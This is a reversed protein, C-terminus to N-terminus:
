NHDQQGHHENQNEQEGHNKAENNIVRSTSADIEVKSGDAFHFEFVIRGHETETETETIEVGVHLAKAIATAGALDTPTATNDTTPTPKVEVHHKEVTSGPTTTAHNIHEKEVESSVVATDDNIHPQSNNRASATLPVLMLAGSAVLGSVIIRKKTKM